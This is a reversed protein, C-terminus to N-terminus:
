NRVACRYLALDGAIKLHAVGDGEVQLAWRKFVGVVNRRRDVGRKAANGGRLTGGVNGHTRRGTGARPHRKHRLQIIHLHLRLFDAGAHHEVRAGARHHHTIANRQVRRRYRVATQGDRNVFGAVDALWIGKCASARRYRRLAIDRHIM